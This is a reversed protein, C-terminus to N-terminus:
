LDLEVLLAAFEREVQLFDGHIVGTFIRTVGALAGHGAFSDASEFDLTLRNM